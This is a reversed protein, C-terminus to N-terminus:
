HRSTDCFYIFSNGHHIAFTSLLIATIGKDKYVGEKYRKIKRSKKM